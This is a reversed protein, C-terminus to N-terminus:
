RGGSLQGEPDAGSAGPWPMPEAARLAPDDLPLTRILGPGSSATEFRVTVLGLGSGQVWGRGFREHEVDAGPAYIGRAFQGAPGAPGSSESAVPEAVGILEGLPLEHQVTDAIGSVSVGLLRIGNSVDVGELLTRAERRIVSLQDTPAPLTRSRSLTSFDHLRVKVTITRGSHGSTALRAATSSALRDLELGLRPRDTVDVPFTDETGISKAEREAVVPRDDRGAAMAALARGAADGLLGVLESEPRGAVDAVTRMGFSALRVATVPGVGPLRSAPLPHVVELESGPPVILQGAPKAADSAIKALLKSSAAGVSGALGTAAAIDARLRTAIQAVADVSDCAHPGAALDVFAEDLSLPEVLVSLGRLLGLVVESAARYAAFRGALVAARPCRRRAEAMAMASHVGYVRAEYNATAVVGRPGTGGVIVPRGALSPKDRTEVAAFFCDMDLHLVSPESRPV